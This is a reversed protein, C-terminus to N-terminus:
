LGLESFEKGYYKMLADIDVGAERLQEARQLLERLDGYTRIQNAIDKTPKNMNAFQPKKRAIWRHWGVQKIPEKTVPTAKEKFATIEKVKLPYKGSLDEWAIEGAQAKKLDSEYRETATMEKQVWRREYSPIGKITTKEEKIGWKYGEPPKEEPMTPTTTRAGMGFDGGEGMKSLFLQQMLEDMPSPYMQGIRGKALMGGVDGGAIPTPGGRLVQGIKGMTTTPQEPLFEGLGLKEFMQRQQQVARIEKQKQMFEDLFTMVNEIPFGM